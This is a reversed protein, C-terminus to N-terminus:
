LFPALMFSLQCRSPKLRSATRDQKGIKTYQTRAVSSYVCAAIVGLLAPVKTPRRAAVRVNQVRVTVANFTQLERDWSLLALFVRCPLEKRGAGAAAAQKVLRLTRM